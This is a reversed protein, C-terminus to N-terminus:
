FIKSDLGRHFSIVNYAFSFVSFLNLFINEPLGVILDSGVDLALWPDANDGTVGGEGKEKDGEIL